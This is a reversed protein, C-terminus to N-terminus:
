INTRHDLRESAPIGLAQPMPMRNSRKVRPDNADCEPLQHNEICGDDEVIYSNRWAITELRQLTIPHTLVADADVVLPPDTERPRRRPRRIDLDDIVVSITVLHSSSIVHVLEVRNMWALHEELVEDTREADRLVTDGDVYVNRRPPDVLDDMSLTADRGVRGKSKTPVETRRRLEPDVQLSSVVELDLPVRETRDEIRDL